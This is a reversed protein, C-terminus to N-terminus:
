NFRDIIFVSAGSARAAQIGVESDEFVVTNEPAVGFHEMAMNFGQPDPKARTIDEQTIVYEFYNEYGFRSLIDYVNKKSATTVIAIHYIDRMSDIMNFLHTNARAHVLNAAYLEKKLEHVQEINDSGGMIDTLFQKYHRGNCEKIFYEEDLEIGYKGLAEKYSYYNVNGTDFLTGDMDFIALNKKM